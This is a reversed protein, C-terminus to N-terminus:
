FSPAPSHTRAVENRKLRATASSSERSAFVNQRAQRELGRRFLACRPRVYQTAASRVFSAPWSKGRFRKRNRWRAPRAAAIMCYFFCHEAIRLPSAAANRALAHRSRACDAPVQRFRFDVIREQPDFTRARDQAALKGFRAGSVDFPALSSEKRADVAQRDSFKAPFNLRDSRRLEHAPERAPLADSGSREREPFATQQIDEGTAPSRLGRWHTPFRFELAGRQPNRDPLM